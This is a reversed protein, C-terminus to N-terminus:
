GISNILKDFIVKAKEIRNGNPGIWKVEANRALLDEIKRFALIVTAHNKGGMLKGIEPYSMKTYRRALYMSFARSQSVTRDKKSSHIDAITVGFFTAVAAEIDGIHVIPDTRSIHEALVQRAMSLTIKGDSISAYAVLKLLAGELERVNTRMKEAIYEIVTHSIERKMTSARQSIIKCRTEFDPPEIKVVMGSVFRNVLRECLQGIMKPHADSALIVQKGALDITNFTHLFEEQMSPKSALFHIDDIALLDTQRFRRRFADLKKTKLALVFQNAFDEASVYVWNAGPRAQGVANCIGQMLHTKGVGYGGHFFLPNFISKDEGTIASAANFALQNGGGVVFDNLSYKM